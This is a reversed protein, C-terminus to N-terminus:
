DLVPPAPDLQGSPKLKHKSQLNLKNTVIFFSIMVGDFAASAVSAYPSCPSCPWRLSSRPVCSFILEAELNEEQRKGDKAEFDEEERKGDQRFLRCRSGPFFM